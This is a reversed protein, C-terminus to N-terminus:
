MAIAAACASTFWPSSHLILQFKYHPIFCDIGIGIWEKAAYNADHRFIDLWPVDRLFDQLGDWDANSYPFIYSFIIVVSVALHECM